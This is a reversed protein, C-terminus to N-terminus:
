KRAKIKKESRRCGGRNIVDWRREHRFGLGVVALTALAPVDVGAVAVREVSTGAM